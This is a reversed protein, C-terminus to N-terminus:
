LTTIPTWTDADLAARAEAASAYTEQCERSFPVGAEDVTGIYAGTLTEIVQVPLLRGDGYRFANYGFVAPPSPETSM